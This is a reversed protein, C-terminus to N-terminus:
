DTLTYGGAPVDGGLRYIKAALETLEVQIPSDTLARSAKDALAEAVLRLERANLTESKVASVGVRCSGDCYVESGMDAGNLSEHGECQSDPGVLEHVTVVGCTARESWARSGPRGDVQVRIVSAGWGILSGRRVTGDSFAVEVRMGRYAERRSVRRGAVETGSEQVASTSTM